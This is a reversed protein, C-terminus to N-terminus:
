RCNRGSNCDYTVYYPGRTSSYKGKILVGYEGADLGRNIYSFPALDDTYTTGWDAYQWVGDDNKDIHTGWRGDPQRKYLYMVTNTLHEDDVSRTWLQVNSQQQLIEFTWLHYRSNTQLDGKSWDGDEAIEGMSSPARFTDAKLEDLSEIPDDEAAEPDVACAGLALSVALGVSQIARKM